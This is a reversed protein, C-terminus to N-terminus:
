VTKTVKTLHQPADADFGRASALSSLGLYFSQVHCLPAIVSPATTPPPSYVHAGLAALKAVVDRLAEETEDAQGLAIVPFGPEVLAVPGHLVEATSFAEAHMRSTEKLKLAVEQAAGLGVGRGVVFLSRAPALASLDWPRTCAEDLADPLALAADRLAADGTWAAALQVFALGALLFSKTAAVATENGACLPVVLDCAAALPSSEDNVFAVALAGGRQATTTLELLDPSRGSQSVAIVLAGELGVLARKYMSAVSPGVSAVLHGVTTELVYKGYTSAHDSSGRACTVVIPPPTARVRAAIEAFVPACRALQRRAGAAAERAETVLRSM